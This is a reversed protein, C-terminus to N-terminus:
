LSECIAHMQMRGRGKAALDTRWVNGAAFGYGIYPVGAKGFATIIRLYREICEDREPYNMVIPTSFMGGPINEVGAIIMGFKACYDVM